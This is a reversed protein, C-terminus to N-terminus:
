GHRPRRLADTVRRAAARLPALAAPEPEREAYRAADYAESLTTIDQATQPPTGPTPAAVSSGIRAALEDPTEAPARAIGARAAARLVGRYLYRITGPTLPDRYAPPPRLSALLARLQAGLLSSADLSERQEEVGGLAPLFWRRGAIVRRLLWLVIALVILVVLVQGVVVAVHLWEPPVTNQAAHLCRAIPTGPPCRGSAPPTVSPRAGQAKLGQVIGNFLVYLILGLLNTLAVVAANIAAGVPGLHALLAGVNGYNLVLSLVLVGGVIVASLGLAVGLWSGETGAAVVVDNRLRERHIRALASAVLGVYVEVPLLVALAGLLPPQESTHILAACAIALLVVGLGIKFSRGVPGSSPPTAGAGFGRWGILLTLAVLGADAFVRASASGLDALLASAANPTGAYASPSTLLVLACAAALCPAAVAVALGAPAGRLAYGVVWAGLLLAANVLPSVPEAGIPNGGAATLVLLAAQLPLLELLLVCITFIM